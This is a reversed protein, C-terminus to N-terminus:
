KRDPSFEEPSLQVDSEDRFRVRVRRDGPEFALFYKRADRLGVVLVEMLRRMRYVEPAAQYAARENQMEILDRAADMEKTWRTALAKALTAAAEGELRAPSFGRNLREEWYARELRAEALRFL